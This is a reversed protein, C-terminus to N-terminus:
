NTSVAGTQMAAWGTWTCVVLTGQGGSSRVADTAFRIDGAACPSPLAAVTTNLPVLAGTVNLSATSIGRTETLLGNFSRFLM